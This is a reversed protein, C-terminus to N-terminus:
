SIRRQVHLSIERSYLSLHFKLLETASESTIAHNLGSSGCHVVARENEEGWEPLHQRPMLHCMSSSEQTAYNGQTYSIVSLCFLCM